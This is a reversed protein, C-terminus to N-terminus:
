DTDGQLIDILEIEGTAVNVELVRGIGPVYVKEEVEEPEIPSLERTRLAGDFAGYAVEVREGVALVTAVDEVVGAQYAIRYTEGIAPVAQLKVGPKAGDVGALWGSFGAVEGATDYTLSREGFSWVTGALDQAYYDTTVEVLAGDLWNEVRVATCEVGLIVKTQALATEEIREAGDTTAGAYVRTVGPVLPFYAHDVGAVFAAREVAPDYPDEGLLVVLATRAAFQTDVLERGEQWEVYATRVGGVIEAVDTESMAQAVATWFAGDVEARGAERLAFAAATNAGQAGAGPALVPLLLAMGLLRTARM